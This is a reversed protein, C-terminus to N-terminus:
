LERELSELEARLRMAIALTYTKECLGAATAGTQSGGHGPDVVILKDALAGTANRPIRLELSFSSQQVNLSYGLIRATDLTM